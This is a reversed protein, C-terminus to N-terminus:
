NTKQRKNKISDATRTGAEIFSEVDWNVQKPVIPGNHPFLLTVNGSYDLNTLLNPTVLFYQPTDDIASSSVIHQFVMRENHPDMGQNIEDVVRFPCETLKQLALLYLMTAVSKEGGSHQKGDLLRAEEGRTYAVWIRLQYSALDNEEHWLDIKGNCDMGRFFGEFAGNLQNVIDELKPKWVALGRTM